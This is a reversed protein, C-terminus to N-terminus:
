AHQRRNARLSVPPLDYQDASTGTVANGWSSAVATAKPMEASPLTPPILAVPLAAAANKIAVNGIIALRGAAGATVADMGASASADTTELLGSTLRPSEVERPIRLLTEIEWRIRPLMLIEYTRNLTGM